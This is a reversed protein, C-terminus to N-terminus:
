QRGKRKSLAYEKAVLNQAVAEPIPYNPYHTGIYEWADRLSCYPGTVAEAEGTTRIYWRGKRDRFPEHKVM